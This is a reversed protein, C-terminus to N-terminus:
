TVTVTTHGIIVRRDRGRLELLTVSYRGRRVGRLTLTLRRHRIAGHGIIRTRGHVSATALVQGDRAPGLASYQYTV